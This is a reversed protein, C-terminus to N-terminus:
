KHAAPKAPKAPKPEVAIPAVRVVSTSNEAVVQAIEDADSIRDGVRYHGFQHTVVLHFM